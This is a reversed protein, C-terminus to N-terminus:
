LAKNHGSLKRNPDIAVSIPQVRWTQKEGSLSRQASMGPPGTRSMLLSMCRLLYDKSPSSSRPSLALLSKTKVLGLGQGSGSHARPDFTAASLQVAGCCPSHEFHGRGIAAGM